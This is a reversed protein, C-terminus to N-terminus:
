TIRMVKAKYVNMVKPKTNHEDSKVKYGDSKLQTVKLRVSM